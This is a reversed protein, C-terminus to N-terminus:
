PTESEQARALADAATYEPTLDIGADKVAQRLDGLNHDHGRDNAVVLSAIVTRLTALETEAQLLNHAIPPVADAARWALRDAEASSPHIRTARQWDVAALVLEPAATNIRRLAAALQDRQEPSMRGMPPKEM